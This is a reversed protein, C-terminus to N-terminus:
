SQEDIETVQKSGNLELEVQSGVQVDNDQEMNQAREFTVNKDNQEIVVQSDTVRVLSGRIDRDHTADDQRDDSRADQDDADERDLERVLGDANLELKVRDGAQAQELEAQEIFRYMQDSGNQTLVIQENSLEKVVGNVENRDDASDNDRGDRDNRDDERELERVLGDQNLEIKIWDGAQAQEIEASSAFSYSQDSGNRTITVSNDTVEKLTGEMEQDDDQFSSPLSQKVNSSVKTSAAEVKQEVQESTTVTSNILSHGPGTFLLFAGAGTLVTGTIAISALGRKVINKKPKDTRKENTM